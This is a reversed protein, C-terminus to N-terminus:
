PPTEDDRSTAPSCSEGKIVGFPGILLCAAAFAATKLLWLFGVGFAGLNVEKRGVLRVGRRLVMRLYGAFGSRGGFRRLDDDLIQQPAPSVSREVEYGDQALKQRALFETYVRTMRLGEIRAARYHLYDFYLISVRAVVVMAALMMLSVRAGRKLRLLLGLAGGAVVAGLMPVPVRLLYLSGRGVAHEAAGALVGLAVAAYIPM